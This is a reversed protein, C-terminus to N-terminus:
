RRLIAEPHSMREATARDERPAVVPWGEARGVWTTSGVPNEVVQNATEPTTPGRPYHEFM